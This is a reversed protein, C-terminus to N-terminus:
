ERNGYRYILQHRKVPHGTIQEAKRLVYGLSHTQDKWLDRIMADHEPEPNFKAPRGRREPTEPPYVLTVGYEKLREKLKPVEKGRGLDGPSLLFLEDVNPSSLALFLLHRWQRRSKKTDLFVDECEYPAFDKDSRCYGYGLRIMAALKAM